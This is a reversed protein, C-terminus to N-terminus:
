LSPTSFMKLKLSANAILSSPSKVLLEKNTQRLWNHFPTIFHFLLFPFCLHSSLFVPPYPLLSSHKILKTESFFFFYRSFAMHNSIKQAELKAKCSKNLIRESKKRGVQSKDQLFVSIYGWKHVGCFKQALKATM